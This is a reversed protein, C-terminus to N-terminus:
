LLCGICVAMHWMVRNGQECVPWGRGESERRGHRQRSAVGIDRHRLDDVGRVYGQLQAEWTPFTVGAKIVSGWAELELRWKYGGGDM